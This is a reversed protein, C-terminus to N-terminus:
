GEVGLGVRGVGAAGPSDGDGHAVGDSDPLGEGGRSRRMMESYM